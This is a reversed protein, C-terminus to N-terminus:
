AKVEAVAKVPKVEAVAKVIKNNACDMALSHTECYKTLKSYIDRVEAYKTLLETISDGEKCEVSSRPKRENILTTILTFTDMDDESLKLKTSDCQEVLSKVLHLVRRERGMKYLQTGRTAKSLTENTKMAAISAKLENIKEECLTSLKNTAM